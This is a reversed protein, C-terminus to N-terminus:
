LTGTCEYPGSSSPVLDPDDPNSVPLSATKGPCINAVKLLWCKKRGVTRCRGCGICQLWQNLDQVKWGEGEM